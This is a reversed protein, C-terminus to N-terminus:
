FLFCCVREIPKTDLEYSRRVREFTPCMDQCTGVFVTADKLSKRVELKDVLGRNEMERREDERM